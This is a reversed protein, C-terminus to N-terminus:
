RCTFLNNFFFCHFSVFSFLFFHWSSFIVCLVIKNLKVKLKTKLKLGGYTYKKFPSQKWYIVDLMIITHVASICLAVHMVQSQERLPQVVSFSLGECKVCTEVSLSKTQPNIPFDTM